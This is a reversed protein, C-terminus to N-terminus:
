KKEKLEYDVKLEFETKEEPMKDISKEIFERVAPKIFHDDLNFNILHRALIGARTEVTSMSNLVIVNEDNVTCGASFFKGNARRVQLGVLKAAAQLEQYIEKIKM